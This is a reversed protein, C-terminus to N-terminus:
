ESAWVVCRSYWSDDNTGGIIIITIGGGYEWGLDKGLGEKSSNEWRERHDHTHVNYNVLICIVGYDGYWRLMHCCRYQPAMNVDCIMGAVFFWRM